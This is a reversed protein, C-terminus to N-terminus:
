ENVPNLNLYKSVDIEGNKGDNTRLPLEVANRYVNEINIANIQDLYTQGVRTETGEKISGQDASYGHGLLEHVLSSRMAKLQDINRARTRNYRITSGTKAGQMAEEPVSCQNKKDDFIITHERNSEILTNLRAQLEGGQEHINNLDKLVLQAFEDDGSYEQSNPTSGIFLKKDRYYLNRGDKIPIVIKKGDPDIYKVPNNATYCYPSLTPYEEFKADRSTFVPPAYYRASYYYMGNEEDLEKANFLYDPIQGNHWYANSESMVEGFPAYFVQQQVQGNADTVLQTSSLHNGHYFFVADEPL